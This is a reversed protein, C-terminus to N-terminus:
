RQVQRYRSWVVWFILGLGGIVGGLYSANHAWYDAVFVPHRSKLIIQAFDGPPVVQGTSAFHYGAFGAIVTGIGMLVLLVALPRILSMASRKPLSGARSALMLGVGLPLGVWWTALIGMLLAIVTPSDSEFPLDHFMTFYELCIRVTIQDHIVGYIIAALVTMMLIAVEHLREVFDSSTAVNQDIM